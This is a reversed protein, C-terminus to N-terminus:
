FLLGGGVETMSGRRSARGVVQMTSSALGSRAIGALTSRLLIDPAAFLQGRPPLVEGVNAIRYQIRGRTARKAFETERAFADSDGPL